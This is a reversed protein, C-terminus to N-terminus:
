ASLRTSGSRTDAIPRAAPPGIPYDMTGALGVELVAAGKGPLPLTADGDTWRWTAADNRELDWWGDRLDPDNLAIAQVDNATRLTLAAVMVGLRRRDEVWPRLESPVATRSLLRVTGRRAPLNFVYRGDSQSVPEIVRKGVMVRLAPDPTTVTAEPTPWGIRTSRASLIEWVLKVLAPDNDIPACSNAERRDQGTAFDPHLQLPGAANAFMSRNGTDLYSEAAVREALLIDHSELEVHFYTVARCGVESVISGGNVLLRIPILMRHILVGHDPSLRLDRYPVGAGFAAARIRVPRAREPAAHRTLDINRFGIWKIPRVGGVAMCVPDGARLLEVAVPGKPTGICTGAAFCAV